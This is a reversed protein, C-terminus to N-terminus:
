GREREKKREREMPKTLDNGLLWETSPQLQLFATLEVNRSLLIPIQPAVSVVSRLGSQAVVAAAGRCGAGILAHLVVLGPLM